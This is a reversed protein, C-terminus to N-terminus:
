DLSVLVQLLEFSVKRHSELLIHKNRRLNSLIMPSQLKGKTHIGMVLLSLIM